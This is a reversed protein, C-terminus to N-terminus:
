DQRTRIKLDDTLFYKTNNIKEAEEESLVTNDIQNGHMAIMRHLFIKLDENEDKLKLCEYYISYTSDMAVKFNENIKEYTM